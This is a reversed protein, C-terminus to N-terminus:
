VEPSGLHLPEPVGTYMDDSVEQRAAELQSGAAALKRHLEALDEKALRLEYRSLYCYWLM